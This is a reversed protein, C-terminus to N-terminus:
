LVKSLFNQLRETRPNVLIDRPNGSEEIVGKDLETSEGVTVLKVQKNLKAALDRVVRPFRSFVSEIPLMRTSMVAEQLQRTNRDLQSLGALLKENLVPDLNSAQQTLM